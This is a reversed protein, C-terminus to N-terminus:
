NRTLRFVQNSLSPFYHNLSALRNALKPHLMILHLMKAWFMQTACRKKWYHKFEQSRKAIVFEAAQCGGIIALSLGCGSAPPISLAADGVFCTDTWNPTSKFGFAPVEQVMWPFLQNEKKLYQSLVPFSSVLSQMWSDTNLHQRYDKLAILCAVNFVGNEVPSIGLYGNSFALMELTNELPIKSFHAKIGMYKILPKALPYNPIKGTAIIVQKALIHQSSSLTLEHLDLKDKKPKFSIVQTKTWIKAGKKSALAQLAPDLELHSLSGAPDPFQYFLTKSFTRILTQSIPIPEIGWRSLYPISEPSLFEGCVKHFPYSGAEILLPRVGMETLRIAAALGAVGGGIIVVEEIM